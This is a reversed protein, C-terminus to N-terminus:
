FIDKIVLKKTNNKVSNEAEQLMENYKSLYPSVALYAKSAEILLDRFYKANKLYENKGEDVYFILYIIGIEYFCWSLTFNFILRNKEFIPMIKKIKKTITDTIEFCKKLMNVPNEEYSEIASYNCNKMDFYKEILNNLKSNDFPNMIILLEDAYDIQDNKYNKENTQNNIYNNINTIRDKIKRDDDNNIYKRLIEDSNFYHYNKNIIIDDDNNNNNNNNDDDSSNDDIIDEINYEFSKYKDKTFLEQFNQFHNKNLHTEEECNISSTPDMIKNKKINLHKDNNNNNSFAHDYSRKKNKNETNVNNIDTKNYKNNEIIDKNKTPNLNYDIIYFSGKREKTYIFNKLSFINLIGNNEKDM